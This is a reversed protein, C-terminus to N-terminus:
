QPNSGNNQEKNLKAILEALRNELRNLALAPEDLRVAIYELESIKAETILQNLKDYTKANEWKDMVVGMAITDRLEALIERVRQEYNMTEEGAKPQADTGDGESPRPQPSFAAWAAGKGTFFNLVGHVAEESRGQDIWGKIAATLEPNDSFPPYDAWLGYKSQSM